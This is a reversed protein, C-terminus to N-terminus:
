TALQGAVGGLCESYPRNGHRDSITEDSAILGNLLLLATKGTMWPAIMNVSINDKPVQTRLARMLGMVGAKSACYTYLPPTDFYSAVSGFLVLQSKTEPNKRFFHLAAKTVYWTGIMNVSLVSIDPPPLESTPTDPPDELTEVRSIGANSIVSDITGFKDYTLQFFGLLESWNSVDCKKFLVNSSTDRTLM